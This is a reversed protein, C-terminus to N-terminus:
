RGDGSSGPDPPMAVQDMSMCLLSIVMLIALCLIGAQQDQALLKLCAPRLPVSRMQECVTHVFDHVGDWDLTRWQEQLERRMDGTTTRWLVRNGAPDRIVGAPYDFVTSGVTEGSRRLVHVAWTGAGAPGAVAMGPGHPLDVSVVYEPTPISPSLKRAADLATRVSSADLGPGVFPSPSPARKIHGWSVPTQAVAVPVELILQCALVAAVARLGPRVHFNSDLKPM